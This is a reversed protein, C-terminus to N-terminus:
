LLNETVELLMKLDIIHRETFRIEKDKGILKIKVDYQQGSEYSSVQELFDPIFERAGTLFQACHNACLCLVNAPDDLFSGQTYSEIYLGEFYPEGDHKPFTYCCIQCRGGYQQKLFERTAGDKGEWKKTLVQRTREVIDPENKRAAELQEKKRKARFKPNALPRPPSFDDNLQTKGPRNLDSYLRSKESNTTRVNEVNGNPQQELKDAGEEREGVEDPDVVPHCDKEEICEDTVNPREALINPDSDSLADDSQELVEIQGDNPKDTNDNPPKDTDLRPAERVKIKSEGDAPAPYNTKPSPLEKRNEEAEKILDEMSEGARLRQFREWTGTHDLIRRVPDSPQAGVGLWYLARDEKIVETAPRTRPNYHGINELYKGNRARRQDIVVIRYSPQRKSGQRRLRIRVMDQERGLVSMGIRALKSVCSTILAIIDPLM